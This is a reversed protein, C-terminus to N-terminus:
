NLTGKKNNFAKGAWDTVTNWGDSGAAIAWATIVASLGDIIYPDPIYLDKVFLSSDLLPYLFNACGLCSLAGAIILSIRLIYTRTINAHLAIELRVRKNELKIRKYEDLKTGLHNLAIYEMEHIEDYDEPKLKKVLDAVAEVTLAEKLILCQQSEIEKLKALLELKKPEMFNTKVVEVVREMIVILFGMYTLNALFINDNFSLLNIKFTNMGSASSLTALIFILMSYIILRSKGDFKM